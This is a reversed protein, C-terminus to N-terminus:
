ATQLSKQLKHSNPFFIMENVCAATLMIRQWATVVFLRLTLDLKKQLTRRRLKDTERESSLTKINLNRTIKVLIFVNALRVFANIRKTKYFTALPPELPFPFLPAM